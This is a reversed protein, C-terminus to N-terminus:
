NPKYDILFKNQTIAKSLTLPTDLQYRIRANVKALQNPLLENEITQESVQTFTSNSLLIGAFSLTLLSITIIAILAHRIKLNKLWENM